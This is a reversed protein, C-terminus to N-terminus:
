KAITLREAPLTKRLDKRRVRKTYQKGNGTVMAVLASASIDFSSNYIAFIQADTQCFLARVSRPPIVAPEYKM